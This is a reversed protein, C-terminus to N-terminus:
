GNIEVEVVKPINFKGIGGSKYNKIKMESSLEATFVQFQPLVKCNIKIVKDGSTTLRAFITYYKNEELNDFSVVSSYDLDSQNINTEKYILGDKSIEFKKYNQYTNELGAIVVSIGCGVNQYKVPLLYENLKIVGILRQFRLTQKILNCLDLLLYNIIKIVTRECWRVYRETYPPEISNLM